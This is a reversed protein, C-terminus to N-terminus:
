TILSSILGDLAPMGHPMPWYWRSHRRAITYAMGEAVGRVWWPGVPDETFLMRELRLVAIADSLACWQRRERMARVHRAIPHPARPVSSAARAAAVQREMDELGDPADVQEPFLLHGLAFLIDHRFAVNDEESVATKRHMRRRLRIPFAGPEEDDSLVDQWAPDQFTPDIVRWLHMRGYWVSTFDLAGYFWRDMSAPEAHFAAASGPVLDDIRKLRGEDPRRLGRVIKDAFWLGSRSNRGHLMEDFVEDLLSPSRNQLVKHVHPPEERSFVRQLVAADARRAGHWAIPANPGGLAWTQIKPLSELLYRIWALNRLQTSPPNKPRGAKQSLSRHTEFYGELM